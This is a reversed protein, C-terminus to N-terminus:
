KVEVDPPNEALEIARDLRALYTQVSSEIGYLPWRNRSPPAADPGIGGDHGHHPCYQMPPDSGPIVLMFGHEPFLPCEDGNGTDRRVRLAWRREMDRADYKAAEETRWPEGHKTSGDAWTTRAYWHDGPLGPYCVTEFRPIGDNTTPQRM